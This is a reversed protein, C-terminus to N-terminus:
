AWIVLAGGQFLGIVVGVNADLSRTEKTRSTTSALQDGRRADNQARSWVTEGWFTQGRAWQNKQSISLARDKCCPTRTCLIM